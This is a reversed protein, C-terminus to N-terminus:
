YFTDNYNQNYKLKRISFAMGTRTGTTANM